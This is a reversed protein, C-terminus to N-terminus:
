EAKQKAEKCEVVCAKFEEKAEHLDKKSIELHELGKEVCEHVADEDGAKVSAHCSKFNAKAEKVKEEVGEKSMHHAEVLKDFCEHACTKHAHTAESTFLGVAAVLGLTSLFKTMNKEM